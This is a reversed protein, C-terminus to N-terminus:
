AKAILKQLESVFESFYVCRKQVLDFDLESFIKPCHSEEYKKRSNPVTNHRKLAEKPEVILTVERDAKIATGYLRNFTEINAFILAELEYINLLFHTPQKINKRHKQYWAHRSKIKESETAIGDADRIFVYIDKQDTKLETALMRSFKNNELQDGRLNRLLPVLHVMGGLVPQLLNQIARTDNPDEGILGIRIM